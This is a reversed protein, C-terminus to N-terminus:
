VAAGSVSESGYLSLLGQPEEVPQNPSRSDSGEKLHGPLKPILALKLSAGSDEPSM